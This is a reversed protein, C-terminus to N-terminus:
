KFWTLLLPGKHCIEADTFNLRSHKHSVTSSSYFNPFAPTPPVHTSLSLSILNIPRKSSLPCRPGYLGYLGNLWLMHPSYTGHYIFVTRSRNTTNTNQNSYWNQSITPSTHTTTTCLRRTNIPIKSTNYVHFLIWLGVFFSLTIM